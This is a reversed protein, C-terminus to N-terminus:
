ALFSPAPTEFHRLNFLFNLLCVTKITNVQGQQMNLVVVANSIHTVYNDKSQLENRDLQMEYLSAIVRLYLVILRAASNESGVSFPLHQFHPISM